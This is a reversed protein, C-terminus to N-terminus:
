LRLLLSRTVSLMSHVAALCWTHLIFVLSVSSQLLVMFVAARRGVQVDRVAAVAADVAPMTASGLLAAVAALKPVGGANHSGAFVKMHQRLRSLTARAVPNQAHPHADINFPLSEAIPTNGHRQMAVRGHLPALPKEFLAELEGEYQQLIKAEFDKVLAAPLATSLRDCARANCATDSVACSPSFNLLLSASTLPALVPDRTPLPAVQLLVTLQM